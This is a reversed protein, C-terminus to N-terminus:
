GPGFGWECRSASECPMWRWNLFVKKGAQVQVVKEAPGPQARLFSGQPTLRVTYTGPEVAIRLVHLEKPLLNWSRLDAQDSLYFFLRLLSRLLPSNTQQGVEYSVLEKAVLGAMKKAILAGYKEDLNEIAKEEIDEILHTNGVWVGNVKVQAFEVPNPRPYFKPLQSFSPNPRKIPSLGNEFLIVLEGFGSRPGLKKALLHDQASLHFERDLRVMEDRRHLQWACRWLDLGLGPISPNLKQTNQYDIFADNFNQEAEYLVASLYRAFASQQYHRHGESVMLSLKHNVRRAEVLANELDGMLAYNMALYTNILVKEFDEGKYDGLNDGTLLTAGETTLSTYDKIEAMQDAQLFVRNSEEWQGAAHLALGQDLLYLLLDRGSEGQEQAGQRLREAAAQYRGQYFLEDSQTDSMRASVCGLSQLGLILVFWNRGLFFFVRGRMVSDWLGSGKASDM